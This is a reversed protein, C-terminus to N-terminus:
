AQVQLTAREKRLSNWVAQVEPADEDEPAGICYVIMERDSIPGIGVVDPDLTPPWQRYRETWWDVVSALPEDSKLRRDLETAHPSGTKPQAAM